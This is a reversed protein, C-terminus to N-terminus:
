DCWDEDSEDGWGVNGDYTVPLHTMGLDQAAAIRHHGNCVWLVDQDDDDPYEDLLIPVRFGELAISAKLEDYGRDRRKTPLVMSVCPTEYLRGNKDQRHDGTRMRLLATLSVFESYECEPDLLTWGM